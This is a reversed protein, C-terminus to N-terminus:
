EPVSKFWFTLGKGDKPRLTVTGEISKGKIQGNWYMTDGEKNKTVSSFRIAGDENDSSYEASGFGKEEMLTSHFKGNEFELNENTGTSEKIKGIQVVYSQGDFSHDENQASAISPAKFNVASIIAALTVALVIPSFSKKMTAVSWNSQAPLTRILASNEDAENNQERGVCSELL